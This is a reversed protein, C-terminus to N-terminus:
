LLKCGHQIAEKLDRFVICWTDGGIQYRDDFLHTDGVQEIVHNFADIGSARVREPTIGISECEKSLASAVKTFGRMEIMMTTNM